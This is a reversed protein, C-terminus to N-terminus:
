DRNNSNQYWLMINYVATTNESKILVTKWYFAFWGNVPVCVHKQEQSRSMIVKIYSSSRSIRFFYRCALCVSLCVSLYSQFCWWHWNVLIIIYCFSYLQLWQGTVLRYLNNATLLVIIYHHHLYNYNHTQDPKVMSNIIRTLNNVFVCAEIM